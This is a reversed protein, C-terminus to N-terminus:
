VLKSEEFIIKGNYSEFNVGEDYLYEMVRKLRGYKVHVYGNIKEFDSDSFLQKMYKLSTNDKRM